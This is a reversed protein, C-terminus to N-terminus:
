VDGAAKTLGALISRLAEADRGRDQPYSGDRINARRIDRWDLAKRLAEDWSRSSRIASMLTEPTDIIARYLLARQSPEEDDWEDWKSGSPPYIFGAEAAAKRYPEWAPDFEGARWREEAALWDKASYTRERTAM